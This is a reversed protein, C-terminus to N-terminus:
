GSDEGVFPQHLVRVGPIREPPEKAFSMLTIRRGHQKLRILTESLEPSTIATLVVLTAGYPMQPVQQILFREFPATILPTVGALAELLHSLQKRSRGPRIRFPQDSNALCGNSILGVRYGDEVARSVMSATVSILYELLAPLTGEWHRPFTAVNMCLVVVKASVPQFIKAQLNGTHATAPWHVRRFEDEPRYDRVGIPQTPDEYLRRRSYLEGFPDDTPLHIDQFPILKPFVTLRESLDVEKVQEFMGFLDGSELRVPGALYVGRKRFLLIYNRRAREYWRLSFVNTLLGEEPIHSPALAEDDDPGVAKPWHDSVRLWSIPLLKRNEIEIRLPIKEGPFARRYYPRRYYIVGELSRNRWWVAVGVVVALMTSLAILLPAQLVAGLLFVVALLSLWRRTLV